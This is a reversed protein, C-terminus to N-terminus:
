EGREALRWLLLCGLVCGIPYAPLDWWTFKNGLVCQGIFTARAAQIWPPKWLQAFELLCTALCVTVGILVAGSRRSFLLFALLMFFIEYAFSSVWNNVWWQAPGRYYKAAFGFPVVVGLAALARYRAPGIM